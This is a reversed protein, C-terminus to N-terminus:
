KHKGSEGSFDKNPKCGFGRFDCQRLELETVGIEFGDEATFEKFEMVFFMVLCVNIVKISGEIL